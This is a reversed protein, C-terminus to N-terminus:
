DVLNAKLIAGFDALASRLVEETVGAFTGRFYMANKDNENQPRVVQPPETVDNCLFWHGPALLIKSEIAKEWLATECKQPDKDCELYGKYKRSDVRFWYFMGAVPPVFEYKGEPFHEHITDCAIDRYFAYVDKLKYLWTWYGEQGWRNLLGYVISSSFGACNQATVELMRLFREIFKDQATIWSLRTGPAIVKSFSDLRIVRGDVDFRFFSTVLSKIMADVEKELTAKDTIEPKPKRAKQYSYDPFQLYYYPEDEIILFDYKQAIKYVKERREASLCSGTPNQGTSITYLLKPRPGVWNALQEELAEPVIGELDMEVGVTTVGLAHAAELASTFSYEECLITDGRNTFTRIVSDWSFTNGTTIIVDWDDFAFEHFRKMHEKIFARLKPDGMSTGYQLSTELPIDAYEKDSVLKQVNIENTDISSDSSPLVGHPFPYAPMEVRLNDFPFLDPIPLGGGLSRMGPIMRYKLLGKLPSNKRSKSEESLLHSLDKALVM